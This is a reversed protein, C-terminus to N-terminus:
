RPDEMRQHNTMETLLHTIQRGPSAAPDTRWAEVWPVEWLRPVAGSLVRVQQRLERPLRGPADAVLVLGRLPAGGGGNAGSIARGTHARLAERAAKLGRAHTRAVLLVGAEHDLTPTTTPAPPWARGADTGVGAAAALTTTGAGGHAGVWHLRGSAGADTTPDTATSTPTPEISNNTGSPRTAPAPRPTTVLWPNSTM